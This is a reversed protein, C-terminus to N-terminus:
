KDERHITGTTAEQQNWAAVHIAVVDGIEDTTVSAVDIAVPLRGGVLPGWVGGVDVVASGDRCYWVVPFNAPEGDLCIETDGSELLRFTVGSPLGTLDMLDGDMRWWDTFLVDEALIDPCLEAVTVDVIGDGDTDWGSEDNWTNTIVEDFGLGLEPKPKCAGLALALCFL